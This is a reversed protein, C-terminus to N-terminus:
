RDSTQRDQPRRSRKEQDIQRLASEFLARQEDRTERRLARADLLAICLALASLVFCLLWYAV